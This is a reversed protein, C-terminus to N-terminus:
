RGQEDRLVELEAIAEFDKPRGAARKVQILKDLGLCVIDHDFVRLGITHPLLAEYGGGGVIEGLLDIDGLATTLTFNLGNALTREDWVFPLGPPAGRPYPVHPALARVLCALNDPAREYVIDLDQTLRTAGHATAAAGGVVIYRAGADALAALLARFDTM